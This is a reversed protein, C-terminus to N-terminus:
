NNSKKVMEEIQRTWHILLSELGRILETDALLEKKKKKLLLAADCFFTVQCQVSRGQIEEKPVYLVTKGKEQNVSETLTAMFKHLKESLEKRVSTPWSHNSLITPLYIQNMMNLLSGLRNGSLLGYQVQAKVESLTTLSTGKDKLFFQLVDGFVKPPPPTMGTDFVAIFCLKKKDNDLNTNENGPGVIQIQKINTDSNEMANCKPTRKTMDEMKKSSVSSSRKSRLQMSIQKDKDNPGIRAQVTQSKKTNITKNNQTKAGNIQILHTLGKSILKTEFGILVNKIQSQMATKQRFCASANEDFFIYM